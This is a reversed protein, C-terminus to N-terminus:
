KIGIDNRYHMKDFSINGLADYARAIARDLDCGTATVGLVRGGATYIKGDDVKTGAHYVFLDDSAFVDSDLGSIEKGTEYKSPYGGSALV